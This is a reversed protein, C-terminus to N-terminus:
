TGATGPPRPAPWLISVIQESLIGLTRLLEVGDDPWIFNTRWDDPHRGEDFDALEIAEEHLRELEVHELVGIRELWAPESEDLRQPPRGPADFRYWADPRSGPSQKIWKALAEDRGLERVQAWLQPEDALCPIGPARRWPPSGRFLEWLEEDNM